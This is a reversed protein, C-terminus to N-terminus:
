PAELQFDFKNPGPKVERTLGSTAAAEYKAPFQRPPDGQASDASKAQVIEVQYTGPPAGDGPNETMLNYVGNADTEGIASIKLADSTFAVSARALPSGDALTIKGEVPAYKTGCGVLLALGLVALTSLWRM